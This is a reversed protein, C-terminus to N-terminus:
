MLDFRQRNLLSIRVAIAHPSRDFGFRDMFRDVILGTARSLEARTMSPWISEVHADDLFKDEEETWVQYNRKEPVPLPTLAEIRAEMAAIQIQQRGIASKLQVNMQAHFVENKDHGQNREREFSLAAELTATKARLETNAKALRSNVKRLASAEENAIGRQERLETLKRADIAAEKLLNTPDPIIDSIDTNRPLQDIAAQLSRTANQREGSTLSTAVLQKVALWATQSPTRAV